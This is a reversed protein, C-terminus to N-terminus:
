YFNYFFTIDSKKERVKGLCTERIPCVKCIKQSLRYAKKLYGSCDIFVRSMTLKKAKPCIFCDKQEDYTLGEREVIFQGHILIYFIHHDAFTNNIFHCFDICRTPCSPHGADPIIVAGEV